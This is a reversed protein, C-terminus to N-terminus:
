LFKYSYNNQKIRSIKMSINKRTVSSLTIYRQIYLRKGVFKSWGAVSVTFSSNKGLTQTYWEGYM